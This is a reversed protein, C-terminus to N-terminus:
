KIKPANIGGAINKKSAKKKIKMKYSNRTLFMGVELFKDQISKKLLNASLIEGL